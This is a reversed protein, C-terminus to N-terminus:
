RYPCVTTLSRVVKAELGGDSLQPPKLLVPRVVRQLRRRKAAKYQPEIQSHSADEYHPEDSLGRRAQAGGNAPLMEVLIIRWLM